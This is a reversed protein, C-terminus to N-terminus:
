LLSCLVNYAALRVTVNFAEDTENMKIEPQDLMVYSWYFHLYIKDARTAQGAIKINFGFKDTYNHKTCFTANLEYAVQNKKLQSVTFESVKTNNLILRGCSPGDTVVIRLESDNAVNSVVNINSISLNHYCLYENESCHDLSKPNNLTVMPDSLNYMIPYIHLHEGNATLNGIPSQLSFSFSDNYTHESRNTSNVTSHYTLLGDRLHKLSFWSGITLFSDTINYYMKGSEPLSEIIFLIHETCVPSDAIVISNAAFTPRIISFELPNVTLTVSRTANQKVVSVVVKGFAEGGTTNRMQFVFSDNCDRDVGNHRYVVANDRLVEPTFNNPVIIGFQPPDIIYINLWDHSATFPRFHVPSLNTEGAIEVVPIDSLRQPDLADECLACEYSILINIILKQNALVNPPSSGDSVNFLVFDSEPKSIEEPPTYWVMGDDIDQQRFETIKTGNNGLADEKSGYFQGGTSLITYKVTADCSDVDVAQLHFSSLQVVGKTYVTLMINEKLYPPTDDSLMVRIPQVFTGVINNSCQVEWIARDEFSDAGSHEFVVNAEELDQLTVRTVVANTRVLRFYGHRPNEVLSLTFTTCGHDLFELVDSTIVASQGEMVDIGANTIIEVLQGALATSSSVISNNFIVRGYVDHVSYQYHYLTSSFTKRQYAVMGDALQGFTFTYATLHQSYSTLLSIASLPRSRKTVQIKWDRPFPCNQANLNKTNVPTYCNFTVNVVGEELICTTNKDNLSNIIVPMQEYSISGNSRIAIVIRDEPQHQWRHQQTLTYEVSQTSNCALWQKIPGSITGYYPLEIPSVIAYECDTNDSLKLSVLAKRNDPPVIIKDSPTLIPEAISMVTVEITFHETTFVNHDSSTLSLALDITETERDCGYHTYSLDPKSSYNFVDPSIVGCSFTPTSTVYVLCDAYKTENYNISYMDAAIVVVRGRQVTLSSIGSVKLENDVSNCGIVYGICMILLVLRRVCDEVKLM